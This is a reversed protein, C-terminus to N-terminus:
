FPLCEIIDHQQVVTFIHILSTSRVVFLNYSLIIKLSNKKEGWMYISIIYCVARDYSEVICILGVTFHM